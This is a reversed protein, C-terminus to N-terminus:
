QIINFKNLLKKKEKPIAIINFMFCKKINYFKSTEFLKNDFESNTIVNGKIWNNSLKKKFINKEYVYTYYDYKEFLKVINKFTKDTTEVFITPKNNLLIKTSNELIDLESGETDIKIISVSKKSLIKNLTRCKTKQVKNLRYNKKLSFAEKDITRSNFYFSSINNKNSAAYNLLKINKNSKYKLKLNDYYKKFPEIGIIRSYPNINIICDIKSGKFVGVDIFQFDDKMNLFISFLNNETNNKILKLFKLNQYYIHKLFVYLKIKKLFSILIKPIKIM